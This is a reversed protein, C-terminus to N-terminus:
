LAGPNIPFDFLSVLSALMIDAGRSMINSFNQCAVALRRIRDLVHFRRRDPNCSLM